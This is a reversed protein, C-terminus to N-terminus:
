VAIYIADNPPHVREKMKLQMADKATQSPIHMWAYSTSALRHLSSHELFGLCENCGKDNQRKQGSCNGRTRHVAIVIVVSLAFLLDAIGLALQLIRFALVPFVAALRLAPTTIQFIRPSPAVMAVTIVIAVM